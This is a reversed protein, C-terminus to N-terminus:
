AINVSVNNSNALQNIASDIITSIVWCREDILPDVTNCYNEAGKATASMIDEGESVTSQSIQKGISEHCFIDTSPSSRLQGLGYPDM